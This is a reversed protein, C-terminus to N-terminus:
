NKLEFSTKYIEGLAKKVVGVDFEMAKKRNFATMKECLLSDQILLNLKEAWFAANDPPCTYGGLGDEILDTNGRIKSVICPLGSAMAEMVSVSLGERFSPFVFIDAADYLENVDDRYGLLKVNNRIGLNDIVSQLHQKLEGEGAIIYYADMDAIARIVTEHNKNDNLEGVSLLLVSDEPIGLERRKVAKEVSVKSFRELDVGVGPVYKVCKARMKNQALIYDEKNITILVDTFHACLKEVPYYLLWNKLPAGKYFHFGHATYFVKTGNSRLKRCALRTCMAAVPTHCHVIDYKKESVLQRIQKIANLNGKDLPSRSTNISYIPCGWERYYDPVMSETENTAIDVEHGEDLLQRIFSKFFRMTIGITTVYLVKM